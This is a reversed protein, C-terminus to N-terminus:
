TAGSIKPEVVAVLHLSLRRISYCVARGALLLRNQQGIYGYTARSVGYICV